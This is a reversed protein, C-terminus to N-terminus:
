EMNQFEAKYSKVKQLYIVTERPAIKNIQDDLEPLNLDIRKQQIAKLIRDPGWNYSAIILSQIKDKDDSLPRFKDGLLKIYGTGFMINTEPDFLASKTPAVDKGVTMIMVDRGAYKPVIQMLGYAPIPSEAKPNFASEQRIMAMALALDIQNDNSWKEVLPKFRASRKKLHNSLFNFNIKKINKDELDLKKLLNNVFDSKSIKSEVLDTLNAIAGGSEDNSIITNLVKKIEDRGSQIAELRLTGKEYDVIIRIDNDSYYNVFVKQSSTVIQRWEKYIDEEKKNFRAIQTAEIKNFSELQNELSWCTFSQLLILQMVFLIFLLNNM